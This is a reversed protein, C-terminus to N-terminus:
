SERWDEEDVYMDGDVSAVVDSVGLRGRGGGRLSTDYMFLLDPESGGTALLEAFEERSVLGDNNTDAERLMNKAELIREAEEDGDTDM